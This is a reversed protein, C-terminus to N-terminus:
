RIKLYGFSLYAIAMLIIKEIIFYLSIFLGISINKKVNREM